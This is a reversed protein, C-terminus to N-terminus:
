SADLVTVLWPVTIVQGPDAPDSIRVYGDFERDTLTATALAAPDVTLELVLKGTGDAKVPLVVRTQATVVGSARDAEYRHLVEVQLRRAEAVNHVTLERRLVTPAAPAVRGFSLSPTGRQTDIAYLESAQARDVRLEGAGIRAIPALGAARSTLVETNATGMLRAKIEAPTAEPFAELLLAAAGAVVPAAGSTGGFGLTGTGTGARASVSAGPAGIDPKITGDTGVPGRSSSDLMAPRFTGLLAPDITVTVPGPMAQLAITDSGGLVLAPLTLQQDADAALEFADGGSDILLAKAGAAAAHTVKNGWSCGGVRAIVVKGAMSFDVTGGPPPLCGDYGLDYLEGVVTSTVPAWSLRANYDLTTVVGDADRASVLLPPNPVQTEAVSIVSTAVSPSGVISVRDFGNGASAVVVTGARSANESAVSTPDSAAGFDAGLSMNIIDARDSLDGDGDPDLSWDIAEIIAANPCGFFVGYCVRAAYMSAGPAVGGQGAAIDAVHTGHTVTYRLFGFLTALAIPDDDDDIFDYGETVRATPFLGARDAPDAAAAEFAEVTGPGGFAAHTYDIGDDLVSITVGTGDLGLAQVTDAGVHAVTRGLTQQSMGLPQVAVVGPVDRLQAVADPDGDVVVGNLAATLTSVVELGEAQAAEVVPAQGRRLQARLDRQARADLSNGRERAEGLSVAVPDGELQVFWSDAPAEPSAADGPGSVAAPVGLGLVALLVVPVATLARPRM